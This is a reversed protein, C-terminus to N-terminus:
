AHVVEEFLSGQGAKEAAAHERSPGTEALRGAGMVLYDRITQARWWLRLASGAESHLFRHCEDCVSAGNPVWDRLVALQRYGVKHHVHLSRSQRHFMRGCVQCRYGDRRRCERNFKRGIRNWWALRDTRYGAYGGKWTASREGSFRGVRWKAACERSCCASDRTARRRPIPTVKGCWACAKHPIGGQWHAANSGLRKESEWRGKCALSCFIHKRGRQIASPTRWALSGCQECPYYRGTKERSM